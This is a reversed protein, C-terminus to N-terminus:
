RHLAALVRTARTGSTRRLRTRFGPSRMWFRPGAWDAEGGRATGIAYLNGGPIHRLEYELLATAVDVNQSSGTADRQLRRSKELAEVRIYLAFQCRKGKGEAIAQAGPLADLAIAQLALHAKGDGKHQNLATVLQDRAEMASVVDEASRLVAVGVRVTAAEQGSTTQASITQGSLSFCPLYLLFILAVPFFVRMSRCDTRPLASRRPRRVM